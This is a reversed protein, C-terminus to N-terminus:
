FVFNSKSEWRKEVLKLCGYGYVQSKQNPNKVLDLDPDPDWDPVQTYKM